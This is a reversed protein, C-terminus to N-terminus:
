SDAKLTRSSTCIAINTKIGETLSYTFPKNTSRARLETQYHHKYSFGAQQPQTLLLLCNDTRLSIREETAKWLIKAHPPRGLCSLAFTKQAM